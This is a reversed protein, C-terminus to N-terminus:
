DCVPHSRGDGPGTVGNPPPCQVNVTIVLGAPGPTAPTPAAPVLVPGLGNAFFYGAVNSVRTQRQYQPLASTDAVQVRMLSPDLLGEIVDARMDVFQDEMSRDDNPFLSPDLLTIQTGSPLPQVVAKGAAIEASLHDFMRNNLTQVTQQRPNGCAALLLLPSLLAAIRIM